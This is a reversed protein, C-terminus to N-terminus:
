ASDANVAEVLSDILAMRQAKAEPTEAAAAKRAIEQDMAWRIHKGERRLYRRAVALEHKTMGQPGENELEAALQAAARKPM